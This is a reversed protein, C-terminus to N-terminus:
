SRRAPNARVFVFVFVCVCEVSHEGSSYMISCRVRRCWDVLGIMQLKPVTKKSGNPAVFDLRDVAEWFRFMEACEALRADKAM